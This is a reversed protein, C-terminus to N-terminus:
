RTRPFAGPRVRKALVTRHGHIPTGGGRPGRERILRTELALLREATRRGREGAGLRECFYRYLYPAEEVPSLEFRERAAALLAHGTALPPEHAHERRWRGLPNGEAGSAERRSSCARRSSCRNSITSGARPRTTSATSRSSRPSSFRARASRRSREISRGISRRSTISRGHSSSRTTRARGMSRSSTGDRDLAREARRRRASRLIRGARHGRLWPRRARGGGGRERRGGGARSAAAAPPGAPPVPGDGRGPPARRVRVRPGASVRARAHAGPVRPPPRALDNAGIPGGPRVPARRDSLARRVGLLARVASGADAGGQERLEHRRDGPPLRVHLRQVLHVEEQRGRHRVPQVARGRADVGRAPLLVPVVRAGLVLLLSRVRDGGGPVRRRDVQLAGELASRVSPRDRKRGSPDMGRDSAPPARRRDRPDGSGGHQAPELLSRAADQPAPRRRADGRARRVSCIWGCYVGKGFFWIGLPILVLTQVASIALWWGLPEHTFVNYVNLPWALILGYARWYERGHGYTVQPFLADALGAPLLHHYGLLPLIIEPLLFLPIVQVAILTWTQATVYPTRRRLIRRIGFVTVIASYAVTYWFAPGAASIALTGVLTRPDRAQAALTGGASQLLDPLNFPFWHRAAFFASMSGGSKWNYLWACFLVFLSLAVWGATRIEGAVPLGSARFFELPAERGIMPFVVDNPIREARGESSELTVDREGIERVRTAPKRVLRGPRHSRVSFPGAATTIQPSTPHEVRVSASPDHTLADLTRLNEPKPRTLDSSRHSLTVMAGAQVLAIAAEVATDGGGVVLVERGAYDNPDHLRNLVKDREEGPVGLKRYSGSKGIAVIVHGAVIPDGSELHVRLGDRTREIRTAHANTPRVGSADAQARLEDLLSEKTDASVQLAGAPKMAHPYTYIPKAKPFNVITAFPESSELVLFRLGRRQAEIAAAMGAVGAGIIILDFGDERPASSAPTVGAVAKAGTDLAFKLLPIGTLDGVVTVGPIRTIGGPGAEPLPEV